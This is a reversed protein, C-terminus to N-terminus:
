KPLADLLVFSAWYYPAAWQSQKVSQQALRFAEHRSLGQVLYHYFTTMMLSTAEDNVNWLSMMLSRVGAKKFGRQIGFVGDDRIDGLATQCASLVVLETNSLDVQAIERATLVGDDLNDPVPNGRLMYNAGSFLLGSRNLANDINENQENLFALKLGNEQAEAESLSFGHTAIHIISNREGSLAKFAEETGENRLLVRANIGNQLLQEAINEAEYLAGELAKGELGRLSLLDLARLADAEPADNNNLSALYDHQRSQEIIEHQAQMEDPTMNYNLGGFVVASELKASNTRQALQKTSSLRYLTYHDYIRSTSDCPLYEIGMQYFLATPSFFIKSIGKLENVIPQWLLTGFRSDDYVRNIGDKTKLASFFDLQRNGYKLRKLEADSFLRVLKPEKGDNKLIFAIYTTGQGKIYIDAFEIAAEDDALSAAVQRTDIALSETFSGYEKCGKVLARELQYIEENIFNLEADNRQDIPLKYYDDQQQRLLDLQNYKELLQQDHSRRLLNRFDIDSNLLIGKTFLLGNYAETTLQRNVNRDQYALLPAYKFVYSKRNWFKEREQSTLHLFNTRVQEAQLSLAERFTEAAANLDNAKNHYVALNYLLPINEPHKKGLVRSHLAVSQQATTIAQSVSDEMFLFLANNSMIRAYIANVTDALQRYMDLSQQGFAAAREYDRNNYYLIATNNLAQAWAASPEGRRKFIGLAENATAIGETKKGDSFRYNALTGLSFALSLSDRRQRYINIAKIENEIARHYNGNSAFTAAQKSLSKAYKLNALQGMNRSMQDSAHALEDAREMNGMGKYVASLESMCRIYDPHQRSATHEIVPLAQELLQAAQQYRQQHMYFTATNVLLKAYDLTQQSGSMEYLEQAEKAYAIAEEYNGVNALQIANNNLVVAYSLGDEELRKRTEKRAKISLKNAKLRNGVQTYYVVLSNLALAYERTGNKMGKVAEEGLQVAMEYDGTEGRAAYYSAQNALTINYYHHKAGLKKRLMSLAEEGTKIALTYRGQDKYYGALDSVSAAWQANNCDAATKRISIVQQQLSIAQEVNGKQAARRALYSLVESYAFNGAHGEKSFLDAYAQYLSDCAKFDGKRGAKAAQDFLRDLTKNQAQVDPAASLAPFFVVALLLLALPKLLPLLTAITNNRASITSKASTSNRSKRQM